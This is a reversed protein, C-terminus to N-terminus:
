VTVPIPEVLIEDLIKPRRGFRQVYEDRTPLIRTALKAKHNLAISSLKHELFPNAFRELTDALFADVDPVRDRITPVIEDDLLQRLWPGVDRHEVAERVTNIGLPLAKAVLATHAGNLIRVKRLEHPGTDAPRQIAPHPFLPIRDHQEVAWLAFPEAVTLMADASLLEHSAPKGSVIRDVLSNGWACHDQLWDVLAPPANWVRAQQLVLALLKEGNKPLLECPLVAVALAPLREFRHWLLDLLKAPFSRPTQVTPRTTDAADLAFGAETTNSVIMRLDASAAVARVALWNSEADIARSISTIERAEDISMGNKLGRTIVHYRGNQRNITEAVGSRTSQVVVIRGVAHGAENAEHVFVDVFGRLFNGGGFQLITEPLSSTRV